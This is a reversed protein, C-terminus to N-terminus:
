RTTLPKVEVKQIMVWVKFPTRFKGTTMLKDFQKCKDPKVVQKSNPLREHLASAEEFFSDFDCNIWNISRAIIKTLSGDHGNKTRAIILHQLVMIAKM